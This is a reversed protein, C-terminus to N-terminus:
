EKGIKELDENIRKQSVNIFGNEPVFKQGDTLMWHLFALVEKRQPKGKSVIYLERAPPSPYKGQAIAKMLTPLNQYFNEGNDIIGDGNIDIPVVMIGPVPLGTNVDYAFNINNFGIASKDKKVANAVGPDGYVGIGTLDEQTKHLYKAWTEAAGCADSRTYVNITDTNNGEVVQGWTKVDGSIFIKQFIGKSIGKALIDKLVPNNANVTAVVADKAVALTWIGKQIEVPNIDRSVMGLDVAESLADTIGKGAGGASVDIKIDPYVKQFEDAWKVAMPYLAWAGSITIRGKLDEGQAQAFSKPMFYSIVISLVLVVLLYYKM